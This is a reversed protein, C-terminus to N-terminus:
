DQSLINSLELLGEPASEWFPSLELPFRKKLDSLVPEAESDQLRALLPQLSIGARAAGCLVSEAASRVYGIDAEALDDRLAQEFWAAVFHEIAHRETSSWTQWNALPLKSLVIEPDNADGPDNISIDLIRPLLYRFDAESGITLFAGSVYRWLQQGTLTRLPNSLLVDVGRTKICCPCGEIMMPVPMAFERYLVELAERIKDNTHHTSRGFMPSLTLPSVSLHLGDHTPSKRLSAVRMWM